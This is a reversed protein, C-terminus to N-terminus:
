PLRAERLQEERRAKFESGALWEPWRRENAVTWGVDLLLRLDEVAGSLDWDSKVEDSVKHYDHDTYEEQKALGFGPPRGVVDVGKKVYLAPVGVKAFEFHDSRYYYGKEPTDEDRVERGVAHAAQELIGELTSNGRGVIAVSRTRGWTNLGDMNINALTRSLPKLPHEVYHKAGLLGQEEGTLAIFLVSRKPPQPARAFAGALELLGATGTANDMAGNFIQDGTLREDRGLHDWHATYILWEGRLKPDRGEIKAVVNRSKVPRLRSRCSLDITAGLSVPKFDRRLAARKLARFDLGRSAFLAQTRDLSMWGAAQVSREPSDALQFNERGWSNVVVFWPYGAPGTEHVILAAAAGRQAAEEFKYTWRGYYTMAKGHFMHEDLKAPNGAEPVPPDGVLMILTKGRLDAGKYDDWKYEPATVGYGVFVLESGTVEVRERMVPSWAVFDQPSQWPTNTGNASVTVNVESRVGVM